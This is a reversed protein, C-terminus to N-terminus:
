KDRQNLIPRDTMWKINLRSDNWKIVFQDDVDNYDGVYALKYHYVADDSLACYGNAFNPPVLLVIQDKSNIIYSEWQMYSSSEPRCDVVVQQIEGYVCTVLKWTKNDGHLGRLVNKKSQSFKDHVFELDRPLFNHFKTKLYTTYISGRIDNFVSVRFAFLDQIKKSEILQLDSSKDFSM